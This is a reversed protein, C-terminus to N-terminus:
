NNSGNLNFRQQLNSVLNKWWQPVKLKKPKPIEITITDSEETDPAVVDEQTEVSRIKEPVPIETVDKLTKTNETNLSTTEEIVSNTSVDNDNPFYKAPIEQNDLEQPEITAEPIAETTIEPTIVEVETEEIPKEQAKQMAEKIKDTVATEEIEENSIEESTEQTPEKIEEEIEEVTEEETIVEETTELPSEEPLEQVVPEEVEEITKIEEEAPAEISLEETITEVEEPEGVPQIYYNQTAIAVAEDFSIKNTVLQALTDQQSSTRDYTILHIPQNFENEIVEGNGDLLELQILNNGEQFGELYIPQWEDIIFSQENITARVQWDNLNVNTLYFDLLIPETSYVGYPQNYTLLPLDRDSKNEATETLINFSTQAYAEPNKFSEHWPTEALLRITHTGPKLNQLIIPEELNYIETYPENDLILNLHPGIGSRDDKFLPYDEVAVKVEVTTDKVTLNSRPSVIAVQPQYKDIIRALKQIVDPPAVESLSRDGNDFAVNRIESVPFGKFNSPLHITDCSVLGCSLIIALLYYCITKM